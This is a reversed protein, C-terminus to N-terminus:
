LIYTGATPIRFLSQPDKEKDRHGGGKLFRGGKACEHIFQPKSYQTKCELGQWNLAITRQSYPVALDESSDPCHTAFTM